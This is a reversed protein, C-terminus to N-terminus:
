EALFILKKRVQEAFQLWAWQKAQLANKRGFQPFFHHVESEWEM